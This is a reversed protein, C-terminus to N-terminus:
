EHLELLVVDQLKLAAAEDLTAFRHAAWISYSFLAEHPDSWPDPAPQADNRVFSKLWGTFRHRETAQRYILWSM